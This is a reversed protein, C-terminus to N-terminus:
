SRVRRRALMRRGAPAQAKPPTLTPAQNLLPNAVTSGQFKETGLALRLGKIGSHKKAYELAKHIDTIVNAAPSPGLVMRSLSGLARGQADLYPGGSDGPIGPNASYILHSWGDSVTGISVSQKPKLDSIDQRTPSNGYGIVTDGPHTGQTNSVPRGM